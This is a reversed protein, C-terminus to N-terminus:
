LPLCDIHVASQEPGAEVLYDKIFAKGEEKAYGVIEAVVRLKEKGASVDFSYGTVHPNVGGGKITGKQNVPNGPRFYDFLVMAALPPNIIIGLNLLKSWVRQWWYIEGFGEVVVKKEIPSSYSELFEPFLNEIAKRKAYDKIIRLQDYNSRKGSTVFALNYTFHSELLLITRSLTPTLVVEPNVKLWKNTSNIDAPVSFRGWDSEVGIAPKVPASPEPTKSSVGTTDFTKSTQNGTTAEQGSAPRQEM